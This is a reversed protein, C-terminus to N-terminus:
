RIVALANRWLRRHDFALPITEIEEATAWRIESIESVPAGEAFEAEAVFGVDVVQDRPDRDLDSRVDILRLHEPRIEIGTEERVERGATQEITEAGAEIFGGPFSYEGRYPDIDRRVLLFADRRLDHVVVTASVSCCPYRYAYLTVGDPSQVLGVLAPPFGDPPPVLRARDFDYTM